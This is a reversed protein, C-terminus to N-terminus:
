EFSLFFLVTTNLLPQKHAYLLCGPVGNQLQMDFWLAQKDTSKVECWKWSDDWGLLHNNREGCDGSGGVWRGAASASHWHQHHLSFPRPQITWSFAICTAPRQLLTQLHVWKHLDTSNKTFFITPMIKPLSLNQLKCICDCSWVVSIKGWIEDLWMFYLVKYLLTERTHWQIHVSTYTNFDHM